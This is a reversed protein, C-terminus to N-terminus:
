RIKEAARANHGEQEWIELAKSAGYKKSKHNEVHFALKIEEAVAKQYEENCRIEAEKAAVTEQNSARYLQAHLERTKNEARMLKFTFVALPHPDLILYDFAAQVQEESVIM